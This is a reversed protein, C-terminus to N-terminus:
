AQLCIRSQHIVPGPDGTPTYGGVMAGRMRTWNEHFSAASEMLKRARLFSRRVHWAQELAEANGAHASLQLQCDSLQRMASELDHSCEDLADASPSALRDCARDIQTRVQALHQAISDFPM